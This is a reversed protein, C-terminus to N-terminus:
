IVTDPNEARPQLALFQPRRCQHNPIVNGVNERFTRVGRVSRTEELRQLLSSESRKITCQITHARGWVTEVRGTQVRGEEIARHLEEDMAEYRGARSNLFYIRDTSHRPDFGERQLRTKQIKFTGTTDVQPSLRLFVPRAYPPLAQQVKQLFEDCDFEAMGDAIAAM